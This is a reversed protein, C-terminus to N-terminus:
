CTVSVNITDMYDKQARELAKEVVELHKKAQEIRFQVYDKPNEFNKIDLSSAAHYRGFNANLKLETATTKFKDFVGENSLPLLEENNEIFQNLNEKHEILNEILELKQIKTKVVKKEM